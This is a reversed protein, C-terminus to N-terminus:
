NKTGSASYDSVEKYKLGVSAMFCSILGALLALPWSAIMLWFSWGIKGITRVDNKALEESYMVAFGTMSILGALFIIIGSLMALTRNTNAISVIQTAVGVIMLLAAVLFLLRAVQFAFCGTLAFVQSQQCTRQSDDETKRTWCVGASCGTGLFGCSLAGKHERFCAIWLGYYAAVYEIHRTSDTVGVQLANVGSELQSNVLPPNLNKNTGHLVVWHNTAIAVAFLVLSVISVAGGLYPLAKAM